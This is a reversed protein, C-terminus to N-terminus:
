QYCALTPLQRLVRVPHGRMGPCWFDPGGPLVAASIRQQTPQALQFGAPAPLRSGHPAGGDGGHATHQVLPCVGRGKCSCAVFYDYGCDDCRARTFFIGCELYNRFTQRVDSKPTHHDSQGDFQGASALAHWTEFQEAITQCLLTREPHRPDYLKPESGAPGGAHLHSHTPRAVSPM